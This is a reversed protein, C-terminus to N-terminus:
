QTIINRCLTCYIKNLTKKSFKGKKYMECLNRTQIKILNLVDEPLEASSGRIGSLYQSVAPQTIGLIKSIENQTLEHINYLEWVIHARVSPMYKKAFIECPPEM